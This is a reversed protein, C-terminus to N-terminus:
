AIEDALMGLYEGLRRQIELLEEPPIQRVVARTVPDLIRIVVRGEQQNVSFTVHPALAALERSVREVEAQAGDLSLRLPSAAPASGSPETRSAAEQERAAQGTLRLGATMIGPNGTVAGTIATM